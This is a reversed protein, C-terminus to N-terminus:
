RPLHRRGVRRGHQQGFLTDNGILGSLSNNAANGTIMNALENGTGSDAGAGILRLHEVESGLTYSMLARVTDTGGGPAEVVVDGLDDVIYHDEGTGGELTDPGAGGDLTDNGGNGFAHDAGATLMPTDAGNGGVFLDGVVQTPASEVTEFSGGGDTYSALYRLQHNVMSETPTFSAATAGAINTWTGGILVQWQYSFSSVPPLGDYDVLTGLTATITGGETPTLDNVTPEGVPALNRLTVTEDAFRVREINRLTDIGNSLENGVLVPNVHAIQIFDGFDFIEYESRNGSYVAVDVDNHGDAHLIERVIKLQGPNITGALVQQQIQTMSDVTFLEAGTGDSNERVSIRVNLWADGDIIDNGAKGQITDSGDGGLIIDTADATDLVIADPDTEDWFLHSLLDRFGDIRAVGSELLANSFSALPSNPSPIAAGGGVEDQAGFVQDRGTLTDNHTWGSLGEVLDFRDRLIFDEQNVFIPIGLDSNAPVADGKHIAWDFGAMGNSRQIGENQVMIDDGSEGDYDTDNSGGNLVDHGIITSNFFLESNDGALGDFRGGGEIWDDGENGLLVDLGDGGLIFDDGTGGFVEKGDPGTILFDNGENGFLLALGSGGHIVDNGAEGHLFDTEGIDTGANVIVDDGEGGHAKDVGYGAEIYDDGGRGWLADDGGGSIITDAQETGGIVIHDLGHYAIYHDVGQEDAAGREVLHSIAELTPNDHEPDEGIQKSKDLELMISFASFLDGPLATSGPDGLDTNRMVLKAFSNNELENLLNLGQTRSLYYFRDADQLNEMTMEFVFSFTSGLMGGFAMKKEALGGIWFDILGFGTEKGAWSGTSNLFAVRDSPAELYQTTGLVLATAAARKGALTTEATISEHTGYAAIFNIISAPHKINLAFDVWSVYPKLQTDSTAEYFKARAENLSPMGVDRGRALNITALDLPLGLLNNRLAGTVFEDIENGVQRTMGRIIAGAAEDATGSNAYEIPNLFAQILGIDEQVPKGDVMKIRSVDETLMSHGFRYVVHAFEATIAPDIDISPEFLFLDIDPQMKRGFEEFVLHQYEMETVFRGAQFLREGNWVLSAQEAESPWETLPAGLLWENLFALDGTELVLAKTDAVVKNHESHFIHHVATLGINENGRGDGTIYHADLLENDYQTLKGRADPYLPNGAIDDADAVLAGGANVVPVANHAIDDLFAHGTRFATATSVPAAPNGELLVDDETGFVGDPGLGVVLQAYGNPGPIFNGYPDAAILPINGVDLDTLEIGLMERAQAKIDAWTALGGKSGGPGGNGELLLGTAVPTGDPGEIYERMFVQKSAHSGYTQNQDVWATTRNVPEPSVRTLVMFNSHGGPVYLPDDEQLPIYVTGNGGKSVLDLGHDFFQGFLTMWGNFPSSLGEDPAVNPVFILDPTEPNGDHDFHFSGDVSNAAAVAAPNATTQDVILNSIMRPDADVVSGPAGYDTNTLTVGPGLPLNDGDNDDQHSPQLLEKFPQDAAGWHERGPILNNYSGDVTRLGYPLLPSSILETLDIGSAHKEAIEIQQLIFELDHRVLTVM